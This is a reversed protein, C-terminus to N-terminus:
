GAVTIASSKSLLSWSLSYTGTSAVSILRVTAPPQQHQVSSSTVTGKTSNWFTQATTLPQVSIKAATAKSRFLIEKVEGARVPNALRFTKSVSSSLVTVGTHNITTGTSAATLTQTPALARGSELVPQKIKLFGM